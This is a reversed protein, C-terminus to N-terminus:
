NAPKVNFIVLDVKPVQNDAGDEPMARRKTPATFYCGQGAARNLYAVPEEGPMIDLGLAHIMRAFVRPSWDKKAPDPYSFFCKRGAFEGEAIAASAEVRAPDFDSYKAGPLLQWKYERDPLPEIVPSISTLDIETWSM